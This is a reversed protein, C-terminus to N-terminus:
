NKEKESQQDEVEEKTPGFHVKLLIREERSANQSNLVLKDDELTHRLLFGM